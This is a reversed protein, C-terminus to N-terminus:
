SVFGHTSSEVCKKIMKTRKSNAVRIVDDAFTVYIICFKNFDIRSDNFFKSRAQLKDIISSDFCPPEPASLM